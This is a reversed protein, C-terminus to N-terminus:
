GFIKAYLKDAEEKSKSSNNKGQDAGKDETGLDDVKAGKFAEYDFNDFSMGSNALAEIQADSMNNAKAEKKFNKIENDRDSKKLREELDKIRKEYANNEDNKPEEVPENEPEKDPNVKQKNAQKKKSKAVINNINENNEANLAEWNINGEEDTHKAILDKLDM